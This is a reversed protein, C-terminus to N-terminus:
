AHGAVAKDLAAIAGVLHYLTSAPVLTGELEGNPMQVDFWLGPTATSL